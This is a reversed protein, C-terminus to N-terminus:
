FGDSQPLRTGFRPRKENYGQDLFWPLHDVVERFTEYDNLHGGEGKGTKIFSECQGNDYPNGRQSM